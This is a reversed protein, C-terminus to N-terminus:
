THQQQWAPMETETCHTPGSQYASARNTVRDGIGTNMNVHRSVFKKEKKSIKTFVFCGFLFLFLFLLHLYTKLFHIMSFKKIKELHSHKDKVM